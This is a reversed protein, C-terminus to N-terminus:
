VYLTSETKYVIFIVIYVYLTLTKLRVWGLYEIVPRVYQWRLAEWFFMLCLSESM